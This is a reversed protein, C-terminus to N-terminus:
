IIGCFDSFFFCMLFVEVIDSTGCCTWSRTTPQQILAPAKKNREPLEFNKIKEGWKQWQTFNNSCWSSFMTKKYNSIHCLTILKPSRRPACSCVYRSQWVAPDLFKIHSSPIKSVRGRSLEATGRGKYACFYLSYESVLSVSEDTHSIQTAPSEQNNLKNENRKLNRIQCTGSTVGSDLQRADADCM